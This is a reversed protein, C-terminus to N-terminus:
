IWRSCIQQVRQHTIGFIEGVEKQPKGQRILEKIQNDRDKIEKTDLNDRIENHMRMQQYHKQCFGNSQIFNNCSEVPCLFEDRNSVPIYNDKNLLTNPKFVKVKITKLLVPYNTIAYDQAIIIAEEYNKAEIILQERLRTRVLIEAIYVTM